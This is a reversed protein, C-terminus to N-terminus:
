RWPPWGVQRYLAGWLITLGIGLPALIVIWVCTRLIMRRRFSADEEALMELFEYFTEEGLAAKFVESRQRDWDVENELHGMGAPMFLKRSRSQLDYNVIRMLKNVLGIRFAALLIPSNSYPQMLNQVEPGLEEISGRLRIGPGRVNGDLRPVCIIHHGAKWAEWTEVTERWAERAAPHAEDLFGNVADMVAMKKQRIRDSDDNYGRDGLFHEKETLSGITSKLRKFNINPDDLLRQLRSSSELVGSRELPEFIAEDLPMRMGTNRLDVYHLQPNDLDWIDWLRHERDFFDMLRRETLWLNREHMSLLNKVQVMPKSAWHLLRMVGSENALYTGCTKCFINRPLGGNYWRCKPCRAPIRKDLAKAKRPYWFLLLALFAINGAILGVAVWIM